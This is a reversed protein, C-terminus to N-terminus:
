TEIYIYIYIYTHSLANSCCCTLMRSNWVVVNVANCVMRIPTPDEYFSAAVVVPPDLSPRAGLVEHKDEYFQWTAATVEGRDTGSVTKTGPLVCLVCLFLYHRCSICFANLNFIYPKKKLPVDCVKYRQKLNERRKSAQQGTVEGELWIEKM